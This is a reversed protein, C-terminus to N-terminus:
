NSIKLRNREGENRHLCLFWLGTTSILGIVWALALFLSCTLPNLTELKPSSILVVILGMWSGRLMVFRLWGEKLVKDWHRQLSDQRYTKM